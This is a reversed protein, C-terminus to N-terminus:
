IYFYLDNKAMKNSMVDEFVASFLMKLESVQITLM